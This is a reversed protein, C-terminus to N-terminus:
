CARVIGDLHRALEEPSSLFPSHDADMTVLHDIAGREAMARQHEVSIARDRSCAVYARPLGVDGRGARQLLPLLPDPRLQRTAWDADSQNCDGYFVEKARAPTFKLAALGLSLSSGVGSGDDQRALSLMSDGPRPVFACLYILGAFLQPAGRAAQSIAMGGMSHGVLWPKTPLQRAAARIRRAYRGLSALLPSTRDSGHAPLDIATATHGREGLRPVLRQWCWAGHWSGHILLFNSV